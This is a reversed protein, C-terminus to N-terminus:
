TSSPYRPPRCSDRPGDTRRVPGRDRFHHLKTEVPRRRRDGADAKGPEFGGQALEPGRGLILVALRRQDICSMLLRRRGGRLLRDRRRFGLSKRVVAPHAEAFVITRLRVTPLRLGDASQLHDSSGGATRSSCAQRRDLGPVGEAGQRDLVLGGHQAVQQLDTRGGRRQRQVLHFGGGGDHLRKM